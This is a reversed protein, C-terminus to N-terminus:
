TLRRYDDYNESDSSIEGDKEDRPNINVTTTKNKKMGTWNELLRIDTVDRPSTALSNITVAPITPTRDTTTTPHIAAILKGNKGQVKQQQHNQGDDEMMQVFDTRSLTSTPLYPESQETIMRSVTRPLQECMSTSLESTVRSAMQNSRDVLQRGILSSSKVMEQKLVIADDLVRQGHRHLYREQGKQGEYTEKTLIGKRVEHVFATQTSILLLGLCGGVYNSQSLYIIFVVITGVLGIRTVIHSYKIVGCLSISTVLITSIPFISESCYADNSTSPFDYGMMIWATSMLGYLLHIAIVLISAIRVDCFGCFTMGRKRTAAAAAAATSSPPLPTEQSQCLSNNSITYSHGSTSDIESERLIISDADDRSVHYYRQQQQQLQVQQEIDDNVDYTDLGDMIRMGYLTATASDAVTTTATATTPGTSLTGVDDDIDVNEEEGPNVMQQQHNGDNNGHLVPTPLSGENTNNSASGNSGSSSSGHDRRLTSFFNM